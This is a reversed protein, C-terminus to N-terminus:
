NGDEVCTSPASTLRRHADLPVPSLSPVSGGLLGEPCCERCLFFPWPDGRLPPAGVGVGCQASKM